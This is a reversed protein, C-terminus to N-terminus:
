LVIFNFCFERPILNYRCCHSINIDFCMRKLNKKVSLSKLCSSLRKVRFIGSNKNGSIEKLYM